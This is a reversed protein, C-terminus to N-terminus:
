PTAEEDAAILGWRTLKAVIEDRPLRAYSPCLYDAHAWCAPFTACWRWSADAMHPNVAPVDEGWRRCSICSKQYSDPIM